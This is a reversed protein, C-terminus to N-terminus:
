KLLNRLEKEIINLFFERIDRVENIFDKICIDFENIDVKEQINLRDFDKKDKMTYYFITNGILRNNKEVSEFKSELENIDKNNLIYKIKLYSDRLFKLSREEENFVEVLKKDFFDIVSDESNEIEKNKGNEYISEYMSVLKQYIEKCLIYKNERIKSQKDYLYKVIIQTISVIVGFIFAFIGSEFILDWMIEGQM